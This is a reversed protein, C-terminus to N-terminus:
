LEENLERPTLRALFYDDIMWRSQAFLPSVPAKLIEHILRVIFAIFLPFLM